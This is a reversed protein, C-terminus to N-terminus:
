EESEKASEPTKGALYDKVVAQLTDKYGHLDHVSDIYFRAYKKGDPIMLSKKRDSLCLRCIWKRTNNDLLIGFYSVTDKYAVTHGDLVDHLLARVIYFGEMEEETTVIRSDDGDGGGTDPAEEPGPSEEQAQAAEETDLATKLRENIRENIFQAFSRKVIGRFEDIVRQTRMGDYIQGLFYRIFDDDPENLVRALIQRIQSNYKLESASSLITPLDFSAKQFKKLEPILSDKIDLLNFELFPKEDMQNERDLDTYFRYVVGNTLIGFKAPTTSFYRFLQSGHRDLNEGCCKAEILIIPLGENDLIAYDVKEGKKIGVDATFEPVFEFPNFVDYGMMQFFPMIISTKTAEETQINDKMKAVRASFQKLQDIFDM